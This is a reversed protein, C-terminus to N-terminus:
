FLPFIYFQLFIGARESLVISTSTPIPHILNQSLCVETAENAEQQAAIGREIEAKKKQEDDDSAGRSKNAMYDVTAQAILGDSGRHHLVPGKESLSRGRKPHTRNDAEEEKTKAEEGADEKAPTLTLVSGSTTSIFVMFLM